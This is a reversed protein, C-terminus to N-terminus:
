NEEPSKIRTENIEEMFSESASFDGNSEVFFGDGNLANVWKNVKWVGQFKVWYWGPERTM